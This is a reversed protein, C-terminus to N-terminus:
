VTKVCTIKRHTQFLPSEAYPADHRRSKRWIEPAFAAFLVPRTEWLIMGFSTAAFM